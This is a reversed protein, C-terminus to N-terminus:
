ARQVQLANTRELIKVLERGIRAESGPLVSSISVNVLTNQPGLGTNLPVQADRRDSTSSPAGYVRGPGQGGGGADGLHGAMKDPGSGASSILAGGATLLAGAAIMGVGAAVGASPGGTVAWTGPALASAAALAIQAAGLSIWYQGVQKLLNGFFKGMAQGVDLDGKVAGEVLETILSAMGAGTISTMANFHGKLEKERRKQQKREIKRLKEDRKEAAKIQKDTAKQDRAARANAADEMAADWDEPKMMKAEVDLVTATGAEESGGIGAGMARMLELFESKTAKKQRKKKKKDKDPDKNDPKVLGSVSDPIVFDMWTDRGWSTKFKPTHKQLDDVAKRYNDAATSIGKSVSNFAKALQSLGTLMPTLLHVEELLTNWSVLEERADKQKTLVEDLKEALKSKGTIEDQTLYEDTIGKLVVIMDDMKGRLVDSETISDGLAGLAATKAAEWRKVQHDMTTEIIKLAEDTRGASHKTEELAASFDRANDAGLALAGTVAEVRGFLKQLATENGQASQTIERIFEVLGKSRLAATTFELNLDEAAKQSAKTNRTLGALISRLQTFAESTSAGRLTMTAIAAGVEEMSVGLSAAIPAVTGFSSALEDIRTKGKKVTAFLIDSAREASLNSKTWSNTVTTLVDVTQKVDALGAIALRNAIEVTGAADKAGASIAQYLAKAQDVPASGYTVALDRSLKEVKGLPLEAQNAITMVERTAAAFKNSERAADGMVEAVGSVAKILLDFGKQALSVASNIETFSKAFKESLKNLGRDAESDDFRLRMRIDQERDTM